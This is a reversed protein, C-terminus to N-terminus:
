IPYDIEAAYAMLASRIREPASGMLDSAAQSSLHEVTQQM